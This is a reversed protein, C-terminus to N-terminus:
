CVIERTLYQIMHAYVEESSDTLWLGRRQLINHVAHFIEHAIVTVDKEKFWIVDIDHGEKEHKYVEATGIVDLDKTPAKVKFERKIAGAYDKRSCRIWYVNAGFLEIYIYKFKPYKGSM